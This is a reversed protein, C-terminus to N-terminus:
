KLIVDSDDVNADVNADNIISRVPSTPCKKTKIM